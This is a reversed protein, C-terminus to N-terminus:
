GSSQWSVGQVKRIKFSIKWVLLLFTPTYIRKERLVSLERFYFQGSIALNAVGTRVTLAVQLALPKAHLRLASSRKCLAGPSPVHLGSLRTSDTPLSAPLALIQEGKVRPLHPLPQCSSAKQSGVEKGPVWQLDLCCMFFLLWCWFGPIHLLLVQLLCSFFSNKSDASSLIVNSLRETKKKKRQSGQM